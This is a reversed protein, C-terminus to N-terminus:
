AVDAWQGMCRAIVRGVPEPSEDLQQFFGDEWESLFELAKGVGESGARWDVFLYGLVAHLVPVNFAAAHVAFATPFLCDDHGAALRELVRMGRAGARAEFVGAAAAALRGRQGEDLQTALASDAAIVRDLEGATAAAHVAVLHPALAPVFLGQWYEAWDMEGPVYLLEGSPRIGSCCHRIARRVEGGDAATDRYISRDENM